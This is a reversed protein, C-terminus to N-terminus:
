PGDDLARAFCQGRPRLPGCGTAYEVIANVAVWNSGPANGQTDGCLFLEAICDKTHQRSRRARGSM